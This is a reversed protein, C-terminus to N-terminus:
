ADSRGQHKYLLLSRGDDKVYREIELPGDEEVAPAGEDPETPQMPPGTPTPTESTM